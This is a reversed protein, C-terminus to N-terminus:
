INFRVNKLKLNSNLLLIWKIFEEIISYTYERKDIVLTQINDNQDRQFIREKSVQLSKELFEHM